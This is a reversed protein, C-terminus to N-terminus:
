LVIDLSLGAVASKCASSFILAAHALTPLDAPTYQMRLYAKGRLLMMVFPIQAAPGPEPWSMLLRALDPGIWALAHNRHDAMVSYRDWFENPLSEWGTEPYMALWRMEEPLSPDATTQITDTYIKYAREELANKLHRNMILVSAGNNIGIESRARLEDGVIFDRSSSACEMKLPLGAVTGTVSFGRGEGAATYTFGQSRAWEAVPNGPAAANVEVQVSNVDPKSFVLARKVFDFLM